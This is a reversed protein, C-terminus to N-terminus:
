SFSLQVELRVPELGDSGILPLGDIYEQAERRSAFAPHLSSIDYIDKTALRFSPSNDGYGYCETIQKVIVWVETM